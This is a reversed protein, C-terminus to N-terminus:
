RKASVPNQQHLKIQLVSANCGSETIVGGRNELSVVVNAIPRQFVCRIRLVQEDVEQLMGTSLFSVFGQSYEL